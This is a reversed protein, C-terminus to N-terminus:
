KVRYLKKNGNVKIMNIVLIRTIVLATFMSILIGVGLTQAFGKVTGSGLIFLIVSAILTTINGDIIAPLARNFGTKNAVRLTKGAVCEEKIREFIIINADVAMGISLIIGAIGPLTLTVGLINLIIIELSLFSILAVDALLGFMGYVAIMFLMVLGIGIAGAIVSTELADIGLRAGKIDTSIVDLKFPLAGANILEALEVAEEPAFGGSITATNSNIPESVMPASIVEDDLLILLQSGVVATTADYFKQKGQNTFELVVNPVNMGAENKYIKMSANAIDNGTLYINGENDQFSLVASAGISSVAEEPDEVGPIEVLIRSTGVISVEADMYGKRDLRERIMSVASNMDEVTPQEIDAEYLISVGGQLDLGLKTTTVSYKKSEGIGVFAIYAVIVVFMLILSLQLYGKNKM